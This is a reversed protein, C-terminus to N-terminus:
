FSPSKELTMNLKQPNPTPYVPYVALDQLASWIKLQIIPAQYSRPIWRLWTPSQLQPLLSIVVLHVVGRFILLLNAGSFPHNSYKKEKGKPSFPRNEPAKATLKTKLSPVGRFILMINSFKGKKIPFVNEFPWPSVGYHFSIAIAVGLSPPSKYPAMIFWYM